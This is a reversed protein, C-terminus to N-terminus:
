APTMVTMEVNSNPRVTRGAMSAMSPGRTFRSRTGNGRRSRSISSSLTAASRRWPCPTQAQIAARTMRRGRSMAPGM